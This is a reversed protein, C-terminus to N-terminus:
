TSTHFKKGDKKCLERILDRGMLSVTSLGITGGAWQGVMYFNELGPLTKSVGNKAVEKQYEKPAGWAQCGRYAGTWHLASVPTVVDTAELNKQFGPFRKELQEAIQDAVKQKEARYSESNAALQNWYDYNSDFVVKVVTKGKPAITPDFNFVEIDLRDRAIGEITIPQDLFRVIAHPEGQLDMAVGYWVELGFPQMKWYAKYYANITENVYKGDLMSFITSYGDADSVVIDAFHESGDELQVGVAKGDRVIIKKVKARYSIEGGLGLYRREINRSFAMSGGIPWGGDGKSQVSLFILPILVPAEQIDYQITPFAKRLFPDTFQQGYDRLAIKSYKVLSGMLPLMKLKAGVGGTMASFLDHGAFQKAAKVFEEILKSDAPSLEKLHQELKNLDTYVTLTKGSSDEVQVFEKFSYAETERLAGLEQWIQTYITKYAPNTSVGFVNHIAYDFSYGKRQWSVCVGGPKDQMEFLKAKYGNMQGYCGTALGGLGAGIIIISKDTLQAVGLGHNLVLMILKVSVGFEDM